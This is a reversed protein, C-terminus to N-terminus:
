ILTITVSFSIPSILAPGPNSRGDRIVLTDALFFITLFESKQRACTRHTSAIFNQLRRSFPYDLPIILFWRVFDKTCILLYMPNLRRFKSSLVTEHNSFTKQHIIEPNYTFNISNLVLCSWLMRNFIFSWINSLSHCLLFLFLIYTLKSKIISRLVGYVGLLFVHVM